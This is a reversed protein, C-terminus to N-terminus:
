TYPKWEIEEEERNPHIFCLENDFEYRPVNDVLNQLTKRNSTKFRSKKAGKGLYLGATGHIELQTSVSHYACFKEADGSVSLRIGEAQCACHDGVNGRVYAEVNTSESCFHEGANGIITIRSNKAKYAFTSGADGEIRASIGDAGRCCGYQVNGIVELHCNRADRFFDAEATGCLIMKVGKALHGCSNGLEGYIRIGMMQNTGKLEYALNHLKKTFPAMDLKFKKHGADYSNQILGTIFLGTYQSYNKHDEYRITSQLFSNIQEPTLEAKVSRRALYAASLSENTLIEEYQRVLGEHGEFMLSGEVKHEIREDPAELKSYGKLFDEEERNLSIAVM